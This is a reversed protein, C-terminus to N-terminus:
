RIEPDASVELCLENGALMARREAGRRRRDGPGRFAPILSRSSFRM